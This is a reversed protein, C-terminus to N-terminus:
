KGWNLPHNIKGFCTHAYFKCLVKSFRSRSPILFFLFVVEETKKIAQPVHSKWLIKYRGYALEFRIPSLRDDIRFNNPHSNFTSYNKVGDRHRSSFTCNVWLLISNVNKTAKQTLKMQLVNSTRGYNM